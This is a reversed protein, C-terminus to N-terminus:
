KRVFKGEAIISDLLGDRWITVAMQDGKDNFTSKLYYKVGKKDKGLETQWTKGFPVSNLTTAFTDRGVVLNVAIRMNNSKGNQSIAFTSQGGTSVWNGLIGDISLGSQIPKVLKPPDIPLTPQGVLKREEEAAQEAAKEAAKQRAEEAAQEAAKKRAEEAAARTQNEAELQARAAAEAQQRAEEIQEPTLAIESAKVQNAGMQQRLKSASLSAKGESGADGRFSGPRDGDAKALSSIESTRDPPLLEVVRSVRIPDLTLERQSRGIEIEDWRYNTVPVQFSIDYLGYKTRLARSRTEVRTFESLTWGKSVTTETQTQPTVNVITQFKHVLLGKRVREIGQKDDFPKGKKVPGKLIDPQPTAPMGPAPNLLNEQFIRYTNYDVLEWKGSGPKTPHPVWNKVKRSGVLEWDPGLDPAQALAASPAFLGLGLLTAIVAYQTRM